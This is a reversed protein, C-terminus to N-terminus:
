IAPRRETLVQRYLDLLRRSVAPWGFAEVARRRAAASLAPWHAADTLLALSAAALAAPQEPPVLRGTDPTIVDPIGGIATGICPTGCALAELLVVGLGEALSPLVLARARQMWARVEDPPQPGLWTIHQAVGLGAALAELEPRLPGEGILALRVAPLQAAIIPLSAILDRVGKIEILAGVYLLLPEREPPGPTFVTVDVGDPVVTLLSRPVGLGAAREALDRSVGVVRACRRLAARTVPTVLPVRTAQTIDSGHLTAVVPRRHIPQSAIAAAASLTWNAHVLDCGRAYRAIALTHVALFPALLLRALPNTRWLTPLGGGAKRLVALQDPWIYRPRLVEVPGFHTRTPQGPEYMALVRVAAGQDALARAAEAIFTGRSDGPWRPFATTVLCVKM